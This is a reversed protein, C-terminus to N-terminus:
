APLWVAFRSGEGLRSEATIRGGYQEVIDRSIFLGLGLGDSKTSYFPDFVKDLVQATMGMGTDEFSVKVGLPSDTLTVTIQLRGGEPMADIANLVLNLFVQQVRDPVAAVLPLDPQLETTCEVHQGACQQSSLSVVTEVLAGINVPQREESRSPLHLGRLRAVTRSVRRLEQIALQLYRGIDDGAGYAENALGLFGIVSQLPNNIEHTLSAALRGAITLREAHLLAAETQKRGTIDDVLYLVFAPQGQEDRVVTGSILLWGPSRDAHIFRQQRRYHERLGQLLERDLEAISHDADPIDFLKLFPRDQCPTGDISLLRQMTPNVQLVNGDLGALVIGLDAQEFISRFRRDSAKLETMQKAVRSELQRRLNILENNLRSIEEYLEMEPLHKSVHEQEHAILAHCATTIPENRSQAVLECLPQFAASSRTMVILWHDGSRTGAVILPMTRDASAVRLQWGFAAGNARLEALFSLAKPFDVLTVIRTLPTGTAATDAMGLDDRLVETIHGETDCLLVLGGRAADTATM